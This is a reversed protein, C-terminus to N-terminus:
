LLPGYERVPFLSGKKKASKKDGIGPYRSRFPPVTAIL